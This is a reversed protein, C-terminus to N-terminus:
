ALGAFHPADQAEDKLNGESAEGWAAMFNAHNVGAVFERNASAENLLKGDWVAISVWQPRPKAEYWTVVLVKNETLTMGLIEKGSARACHRCPVVDPYNKPVQFEHGEGCTITRQPMFQFEPFDEM